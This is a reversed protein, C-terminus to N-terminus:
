MIKKLSYLNHLMNDKEKYLLKNQAISILFYPRILINVNEHAIYTSLIYVYNRAFKRQIYKFRTSAVVMKKQLQM